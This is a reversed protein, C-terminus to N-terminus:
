ENNLYKRKIEKFEKQMKKLLSNIEFEYNDDNIHSLKDLYELEIKENLSNKIYLNNNLDFFNKQMDEFSLICSKNEVITKNKYINVINKINEKGIVSKKRKISLAKDFEDRADILLINKSTKRKDFIAIIVETMPSSPFLHLPMIIITDIIGEKILATRIKEGSSECSLFYLPLITFLKGNEKLSEIMHMLCVFDGKKTAGRWFRNYLDDPKGRTNISFPPNAVIKDFKMLEGNEVFKTAELVDCVESIVPINNIFMNLRLFKIALDNIDTAFLPIANIGKLLNNNNKYNSVAMLIAGMGAFPDYIVDTSNPEALEAILTCVEPPTYHEGIIARNKDQKKSYEIRTKLQMYITIFDKNAIDEKDLIRIVEKLFDKNFDVNDFSVNAKKLYSNNVSDFVENFSDINHKIQNFYEINIYKLFCIFLTIAYCDDLQM